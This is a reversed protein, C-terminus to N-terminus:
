TCAHQLPKERDREFPQDIGLDPLIRDDVHLREIDTRSMLHDRDGRATAVDKGVQGRIGGADGRDVEIPRMDRETPELDTRRLVQRVVVAEKAKEAAGVRTGIDGGVITAQACLEVRGRAGVPILSCRETATANADESVIEIM